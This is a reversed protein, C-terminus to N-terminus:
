RETSGLCQQEVADVRLPLGLVELVQERGLRQEWLLSRYQCLM